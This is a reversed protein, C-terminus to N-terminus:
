KDFASENVCGMALLTDSQTGLSIDRSWRARCTESIMRGRSLTRSLAGGRDGRREGHRRSIIYQSDTRSAVIAAKECHRYSRAAKANM